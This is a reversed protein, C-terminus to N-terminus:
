NTEGQTPTWRCVSPDARRLAKGSMEWFMDKAPLSFVPALGPMMLLSPLAGQEFAARAWALIRPIHCQYNQLLAGAHGHRPSPGKPVPSLM